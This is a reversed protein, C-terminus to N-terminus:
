HNGFHRYGGRDSAELPQDDMWVGAGERLWGVRRCPTRARRAAAEIASQASAPASFCLEYDDGGGLWYAQAKAQGVAAILRASPRCASREFVVALDSQEGIHGADAALGDSVDIAATALGALLQGLAIRPQPQCFVEVLGRTAPEERRNAQWLALGAAAEGPQGSVWLQDGAQAGDRRLPWGVSGTIQLSVSRPGRTIDGGIIGIGHARALRDIGAAFGAVWPEDIAPLTLGMLAWLPSAGMAAMDSLNVALARYGVAEAPLDVPFHVGEVLTDLALALRARDARVLAADDGVGLEVDARAAGLGTFYRDILAFESCEAM